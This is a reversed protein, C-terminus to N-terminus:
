GAESVTHKREGLTRVGKCRMVFSCVLSYLFVSVCHGGHVGVVALGRVACSCGRGITAALGGSRVRGIGSTCGRRVDSTCRRGVMVLAVIVAMALSALGRPRGVNLISLGRWVILTSPVRSLGRRVHSAFWGVIVRTLGRWVLASFSPCRVSSWIRRWVVVVSLGGWVSMVAIWRGVTVAERRRSRSIGHGHGAVGSSCLGM